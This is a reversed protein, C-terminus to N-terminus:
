AYNFGAAVGSTGTRYFHTFLGYRIMDCTHDREKIPKDEGKKQAKDDWVYGQIEGISHKCTDGMLFLGDRMMMGTFRIGDIVANNAEIIHFGRKKLETIFSLASPDVYVPCKGRLGGMFDQLDDAYESDTKQRGSKRGDYYYEKLLYCPPKQGKYGFLGFTTANATGYDISVFHRVPAKNAMFAVSCSPTLDHNLNLAKYPDVVHIDTDFMDYVAGEAQVWLGDIFRKYWLGTYEKKLNNVYGPDLGPNDELSFHFVAIDLEGARDIYDRKLWHYPSDPNTTGFLKAGKVSLRSLLMTFFSEPWLSLEDGYAGAMTRGRIKDQAREDSAGLVEILQGRFFFEGNGRRYECLEPFFAMIPEIINRQLATQTKGIMALTGGKPPSNSVYECWRLASAITKGSRVAGEWINIRMISDLMSDLQKDSLTEFPFTSEESM